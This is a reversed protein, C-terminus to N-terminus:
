GDTDGKLPSYKARLKVLANGINEGEDNSSGAQWERELEDLLSLPDVGSQMAARRLTESEVDAFAAILKEVLRDQKASSFAFEHVIALAYHNYTIYDAM